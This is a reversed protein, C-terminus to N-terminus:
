NATRSAMPTSRARKTPSQAEQRIFAGSATRVPLALLGSLHANVPQGGLYLEGFSMMIIPAHSGGATGREARGGGSSDGAM